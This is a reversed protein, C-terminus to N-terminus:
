HEIILVLVKKYNFINHAVSIFFILYHQLSTKTILNYSIEGKFGPKRFLTIHQNEYLTFVSRLRYGIGEM